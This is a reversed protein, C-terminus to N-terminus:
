NNTIAHAAITTLVTAVVGALLATAKRIMSAPTGTYKYQLRPLRRRHSVLVRFVHMPGLGLAGGSEIQGGAAYSGEGKALQREIKGSEFDVAIVFVSIAGQDAGNRDVVIHIGVGYDLGGSSRHGVVQGHGRDDLRAVFYQDFM